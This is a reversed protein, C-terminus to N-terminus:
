WSQVGLQVTGAIITAIVQLSNLRVHDLRPTISCVQAWFMPRPPIKMYHGLKFDATFQMAICRLYTVLCPYSILHDNAKRWPSIDMHRLDITRDARMRGRFTFCDYMMMAIPRGPLMFGVAPKSPWILRSQGFPVHVSRYTGHHRKTCLSM